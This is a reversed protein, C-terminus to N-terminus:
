LLYRRNTLEPVATMSKATPRQSCSKHQQCVNCLVPDVTQQQLKVGLEYLLIHSTTLISPNVKQQM